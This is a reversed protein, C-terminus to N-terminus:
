WILLNVIEAFGSTTLDDSSIFQDCFLQTMIKFIGFISFDAFFFLIKQFITMKSWNSGSFGLV